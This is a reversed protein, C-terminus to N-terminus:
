VRERCSARGIQGPTIDTLECILRLAESPIHNLKKQVEQLIQIVKDKERGTTAVVEEVASKILNVDAPKCSCFDNAIHTNEEIV